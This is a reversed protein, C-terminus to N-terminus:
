YYSVIRGNSLRMYLDREAIVICILGEGTGSSGFTLHLDLCGYKLEDSEAHPLPLAYIALGQLIDEETITTSPKSYDSFSGTIQHLAMLLPKVDSLMSPAGGELDYVYKPKLSEAFDRNDITARFETLNAPECFTPRRNIAGAYGREDILFAYLRKPLAQGGTVDGWRHQLSGKAIRRTYSDMRRYCMQADGALGRALISRAPQNFIIRKAYISAEDIKVAYSDSSDASGLAFHPHSRMMEIDISTNPPVLQALSLLVDSNIRGYLVLVKSDEIREMGIMYTAAEEATILSQDGADVTGGSLPILLNERVEKSTGLVSLLQSVYAYECTPPLATDGIKVNVQNFLNSLLGSLPFVKAAGEGGNIMGGISSGNHKVVRIELKIFIEHTDTFADAIAPIRFSLSSTADSIRPYCSFHSSEIGAGSTATLTYDIRKEM